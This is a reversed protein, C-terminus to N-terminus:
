LRESSREISFGIATNLGIVGAIAAADVLEGIMTSLTGSAVLLASPVNALQAALLALRSRAQEREVANEGFRRRARRVEEEGLGDPRSSTASLVARVPLAHWADAPPPESRFLRATLPELM